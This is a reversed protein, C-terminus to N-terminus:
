DFCMKIRIVIPLKQGLKAINKLSKPTNRFELNLCYQLVDPCFISLGFVAGPLQYRGKVLVGKRKLFYFFNGVTFHPSFSLPEKNNHKLMGVKM